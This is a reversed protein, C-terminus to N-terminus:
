ANRRSARDHAREFSARHQWLQHGRVRRQDTKTDNMTATSRHLFTLIRKKARHLRSKTAFISIHLTKSIEQLSLNQNVKLETVLRLRELLQCIARNIASAMENILCHEEPNATLDAFELERRMNETTDVFDISIAGAKKNNKRLIMLASNIAIGTLWTSFSSRRDFQHIYIFARLFSDQLADEADARDKAVRSISWYVRRSNRRYLERFASESGRQAATVLQDDDFLTHQHSQHPQHSLEANHM